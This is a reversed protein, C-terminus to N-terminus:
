GAPDVGEPSRSRSPPGGDGKLGTGWLQEACWQGYAGQCHAHLTIWEPTDYSHLAMVQQHLAELGPPHTKLLLQVEESRTLRGQWRYISVTPMLSVCAVLGRQLLAEALSEAKELSAETTLM